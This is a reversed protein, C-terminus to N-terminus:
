PYEETTQRIMCCLNSLQLTLEFIFRNDIEFKFCNHFEFFCYRFVSTYMTFDLSIKYFYFKLNVYYAIHTAFIHQM